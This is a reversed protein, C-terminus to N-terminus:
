SRYLPDSKNLQKTLRSKYRAAANRHIIGKGALKDILSTTDRLATKAADNGNSPDAVATDITTRVSKLSHRMRSRLDRNHARRRINQKSAKIASKHNAM